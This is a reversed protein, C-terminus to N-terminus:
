RQPASFDWGLMLKRLKLLWVILFYNEQEGALSGSCKRHEAGVEGLM